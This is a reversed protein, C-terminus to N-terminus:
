MAVEESHVEEATGGVGRGTSVSGNNLRFTVANFGLSLEMCQNTSIRIDM